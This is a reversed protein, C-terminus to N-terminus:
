AAADTIADDDGMADPRHMAPFTNFGASRADLVCDYLTAFSRTATRVIQDGVAHSWTWAGASYSFDFCDKQM